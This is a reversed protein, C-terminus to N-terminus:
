PLNARMQELLMAFAQVQAPSLDVVANSLAAENLWNGQADVVAALVGAPLGVAQEIEGRNLGFRGQRLAAVAAEIRQQPQIQLLAAAPRVRPPIEVTAAPAVGIPTAGVTPRSGWPPPQQRGSITAFIESLETSAPGPLDTPMAPPQSSSGLEGPPNAPRASSRDRHSLVPPIARVLALLNLVLQEPNEGAEQAAQRVSPHLEPRPLGPGTTLWKGIDQLHNIVKLTNVGTVVAMDIDHMGTLMSVADTATELNLRGGGPVHGEATRRRLAAPAQLSPQPRERHLRRAFARNSEGERQPHQQRISELAAQFMDDQSLHSTVVGSLLSIETLNLQPRERHLRRAYARNSEGERQPLQQRIPMLEAPLERFTPPQAEPLNPLGVASRLPLSQLPGAPSANRSPLDSVTRTTASTSAAPRQTQQSDLQSLQQRIPELTPARDQLLPTTVARLLRTIQTLNLEPHERRLRQAYALNTEGERRWPPLQQRGDITSIPLAVAARLPLSQLPGASSASRSPPLDSVTRTTASTSAAPRQTQQSDLQSLQQRIPELTPARDQMLPTIVAGSLQFVQTSNLQPHERHLWRAYAQATEGDLQPLQQRITEPALPLGRVAPAQFARDQSSSGPEGSSNAPRASSRDRQSLVPPTARVLALLNLVLQEPNEGAEQAAQRVSPHLEPRPLGPETTLWKGIDQLHNIVQLTNPNTVVDMDIDHTGTLMSVADTTTELNLRGGGPVHGEATPRRLAAPAQLPPQPRARYLRRAYARSSEGERQPLQQRITELAAQFADDQRLHSTVVGSLLSIQTLNLEPRERHLRRAYARNNEGERQPLQQRIPM